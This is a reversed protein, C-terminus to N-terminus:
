NPGVSGELSTTSRRQQSELPVSSIDWHAYIVLYWFDVLPGTNWPVRFYRCTINYFSKM